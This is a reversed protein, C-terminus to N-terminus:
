LRLGSHTDFFHAADWCFGISCNDGISIGTGDPESMVFLEELGSIRLYIFCERGVREVEEVRAIIGNTTFQVAEPRFGICVNRERFGWREMARRVKEPAEIWTNGASISLREGDSKIECEWVNMPPSGIFRAVFMNFPRAYVMQPTDAQQLVGDKMVAVRTGMSMAEVQDHTVYVTTTGLRRQLRVIEHRMQVRLEADLNSLPEDMLFLAPERVMARGLAVRQRQGGSLVGPLRYLLESIELQEAVERVKKQVADKKWRRMKLPFALNDYVHMTPYLAYNQFVMAVDRECPLLKDIYRDGLMIRGGDMTELGALMRLLTSKGCGSPGVLVMFEGAGIEMTVNKVAHIDGDYYKDAGEIFLGQPDRAESKGREGTLINKKRFFM